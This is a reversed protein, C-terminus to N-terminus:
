KEQLAPITMFVRSGSNERNTIQITGNHAEIINKVIGLGLGTGKDKTSFFPDWIKKLIDEPIGSGEDEFVVNVGQNGASIRISIKGGSPMSQMGNILINLFAQYLMNADAMVEPLVDDQKKEVSCRKEELQPALFTINKEIIDEIRCPSLNPQRPKAFDLFDSIISDLRVAEEVIIDPISNSPDLASIKKKLLEGSSRIIGLPNRIEHSIGAVMEGISSLHEARRLQKELKLREKARKDIISEGRRAVIILIIFLSCMVITITAIILLQFRFITKFDESLDQVIEAVGIIIAPAQSDPKVNESRLPVTTIMKNQTPFGLLTEIFNGNQILKTSSKGAVADLYEPGGINEKGVMTKDFSYSIINKKVDYITVMDVKYGHLANQIVKDLMEAQVKERLIIKKYKMAAPVFFQWFIQHNLKEAVFLAYEESRKEQTTRVWNTNLLSLVITSIFIVTFSTFTFYKVLRFPRVKEEPIKM